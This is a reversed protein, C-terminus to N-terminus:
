GLRRTGFVRGASNYCVAGTQSASDEPRAAFLSNGPSDQLAHGRKATDPSPPPPTPTQPPPCWDTQRAELPMVEGLEGIGLRPTGGIYIGCVPM